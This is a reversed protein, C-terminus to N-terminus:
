QKAEMLEAYLWEYREVMKAVGFEVRAREKSAGGLRERLTSDSLIAQAAKAFGARDGIPVLFGTVGDVVLERNGPIDSAVVPVGAAMAELIANSQGEHESALWLLDFHPMWDALDGREGLFHVRDAIEVQNRYRTLRERHPGEGFILLHTDDRARKLLDAAWILDKIRKQPCLRGIAAILRVNRPLGVKRLLEDRPPPPDSHFAHPPAANPIVAFKERAIGHEVAFEVIAPSNAVIRDTRRALYKDIAVHYWAKWKDLRREGAIIRTVGARRAALRGYSNAAFLWTHVIDPGVSQIHRALRLLAFPDLKGYKGIVTIPAGAADLEARSPGDRALVAVHPEFRARDINGCLLGLQKEAGGRDLAPIVHLIRIM